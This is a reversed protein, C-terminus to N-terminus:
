KNNIQVSAVFFRAKPIIWCTKDMLPHISREVCNMDLARQPLDLNKYETLFMNPQETILAKYAAGYVVILKEVVSRKVIYSNVLSSGFLQKFNDDYDAVKLENFGLYIGDASCALFNDINNRLDKKDGVFDCGEECIWIADVGDPLMRLVKIHSALRGAAPNNLCMADFVVSKYDLQKFMLLLNDVKGATKIIVPGFLKM